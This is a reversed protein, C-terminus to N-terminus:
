RDKELRMFTEVAKPDLHTGSISFIYKEIQEASWASRYPRDHSLADWIDVVAFIRAAVPIQEHSLGRPYGSGDWREHHYYPIDLAPQLFAIPSLLEYAYTPHKRMIKWEDESLPGPKLLINDPIGMKGIDHLLAGRRIHVIEADPIGMARALRVTTEAVRLAHGETERDRLELARSWGELTTDYALALEMNSRQMTDFLAMNDIAIATQAALTVLFDMWEQDIEFRSRHFVELVGKIEGKAILPLAIYTVFGANGRRLAVPLDDTAQTLDPVSIVKREQAARGAYGNGLPLNTQQIARSRFGRGEAFQLMQLYPNFLLIDAADVRLQSTVQELIINLTVRLDLSSGIATDISHLAAIRQLQRQIRGEARKREGLEQQIEQFLRANDLAVSVHRAFLAVAPIDSESLQEGNIAIFGMTSGGTTLPAVLLQNHHTQQLIWDGISRDEPLMLELFRETLSSTIYTEGALLRDWEDRMASLPFGLNVKREGFKAAYERLTEKGMATHILDIQDASRSTFVFAFTGFRQVQNCATRLITFSDFSQQVQIAAANLVTLQRARRTAEKFLRAKNIGVAVTDAITSLLELEADGYANPVYSQVSIVGIVQDDLLLPVGLWSAPMEGTGWLEFPPVDTKERKLDRILRPRKSSVVIGSIGSSLPRRNPPAINGRDVLVRFDLENAARDYLAIFFADFPISNSMERHVNALLDDLELTTNAARAIRNLLVLREARQTTQELLRANEIAIAAQNAFALLNEANTESFFGTEASDLNVFGILQNQTRIPAGLYSRVWERGPLRRWHPDTQTDSIVLPRHSEKMKVLGPFDRLPLSVSAMMGRHRLEAYGHQRVARVQEGELLMVNAADHPVVRGIDQLIRDLIEEQDTTSNLATAADRLAEALIRQKREANLLRATEVASVCQQAIAQLLSIQRSPFYYPQRMWLVIGGKVQDGDLMPTALVARINEMKARDAFPYHPDSVVDPIVIPRREVTAQGIAGSGPTIGQANVAEIFGESVGYSATIKICSHQLLFVGSADAHCLEAAHRAILALVQPLDSVSSIERSIQTLAALQSAERQLAEEARMLDSIDFVVGDFCDPQGDTHMVTADNHVWIERGDRRLMRYDTRLPSAMEGCRTWEARVRERDDAHIRKFWLSPDAQLERAQFGLLSEVQPSAYIWRGHNGVQCIYVFAPLNDVRVVSPDESEQMSEPSADLRDSALRRKLLNQLPNRM